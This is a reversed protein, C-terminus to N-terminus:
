RCCSATCTQTISCAIFIGVNRAPSPMKSGLHPTRPTPPAQLVGVHSSRRTEGGHGSAVSKGRAHVRSSNDEPLPALTRTDTDKRKSSEPLLEEMQFDASENPADISESLMSEGKARTGAELVSDGHYSDSMEVDVHEGLDDAIGIESTSMIAETTLRDKKGEDVFLAV